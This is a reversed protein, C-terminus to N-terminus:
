PMHVKVDLTPWDRDIKIEPSIRLAPPYTASAACLERAIKAIRSIM